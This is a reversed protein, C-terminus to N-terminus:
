FWFRKTVVAVPLTLACSGVPRRRLAQGGSVLQLFPDGGAPGEGM